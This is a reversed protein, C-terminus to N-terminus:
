DIKQTLGAKFRARLVGSLVILPFLGLAVLVIRWCFYFAIGFGAVFTTLSQILIFIYTTVVENVIEASTSLKLGLSGSMNSKLDFWKMPMKLIKAFVEKRLNETIEDGALYGLYVQVYYIIFAVVGIILFVLSSLNAQKM